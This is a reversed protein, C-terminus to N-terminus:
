LNKSAKIIDGVVASATEKIGAGAGKLIIEGILDGKIIAVNSTGYVALPSSKPIAIPEVRVNDEEVRAVLRVTQGKRLLEEVTIESIGRIKIERFTIPHFAICHLITAKYGADVGNIDGSPDREAIGLEQAKKLAEGFSIGREMESLIFTTTGNFVGEIKEISDGKLSEQLLAIIPTGAMVTAEFKYSLGRREAERILEKYHFALPPKNSTVVNKEEKLAQLHWIHADPDNTVDVIIDSDIESVVDVPSFDFIEYDNTWRSLSGLKEKIILAERLDIDRDWITASSDSISVINFEIGYKERFLRRKDILVKAVGKGVNGFGIFSLSITKM